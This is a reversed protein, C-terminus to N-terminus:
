VRLLTSLTSENVFYIDYYTHGGVKQQDKLYVMGVAIFACFELTGTLFM